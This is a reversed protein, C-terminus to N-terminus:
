SNFESSLIFGILSDEFNEIQLKNVDMGLKVANDLDLEPSEKKAVLDLSELIKLCTSEFFKSHDSSPLITDELSEDLQREPLYILWGNTDENAVGARQFAESVHHTGAIFRIFEADITRALPNKRLFRRECCHWATWLQADSHAAHSGLMLWRQSPRIDLFQKVIEESSSETKSWAMCPFSGLEM